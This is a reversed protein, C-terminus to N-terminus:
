NVNNPFIVTEIGLGMKKLLGIVPQWEERVASIFVLDKFVSAECCVQVCANLHLCSTHYSM